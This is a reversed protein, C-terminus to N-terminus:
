ILWVSKREFHTGGGRGQRKIGGEANIRGKKGKEKRFVAPVKKKKKPKKYPKQTKPPHKKKPTKKKKPPPNKKKV